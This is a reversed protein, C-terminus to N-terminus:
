RGIFYIIPNFIANLTMLLIGSTFVLSEPAHRALVTHKWSFLDIMRFGVLVIWPSFTVVFNVLYLLAQPNHSEFQKIDQTKIVSVLTYNSPNASRGETIERTFKILIKIATTWALLYYLIPLITYTWEFHSVPIDLLKWTGTFEILGQETVQYKLGAVVPVFVAPLVTGWMVVSTVYASRKTFNVMKGLYALLVKEIGFITMISYTGFQKAFWLLGSLLFLIDKESELMRTRNTKDYHLYALFLSPLMSYLLDIIALQIQLILTASNPTTRSKMRCLVTCNLAVSVVSLILTLRGTIIDFLKTYEPNNELNTQALGAM